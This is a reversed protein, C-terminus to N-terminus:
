KATKFYKISTALVFIENGFTDKMELTEGDWAFSELVRFSEVTSDTFCIFITIIRAEKNM